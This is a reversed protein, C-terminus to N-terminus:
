VLGPLGTHIQISEQNSERLQIDIKLVKQQEFLFLFKFPVLIKKVLM